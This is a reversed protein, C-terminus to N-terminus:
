PSRFITCSFVAAAIVSQSAIGALGTQAAGPRLLGAQAPGARFTGPRIAESSQGGTRREGERGLQEREPHHIRWTFLHDWVRVADSRESCSRESRVFTGCRADAMGPDREGPLPEFRM